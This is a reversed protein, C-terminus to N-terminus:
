QQPATEVDWVIVRNRGAEKAALLARDACALLDDLATKEEAATAAIGASVTVSLRGIPADVRLSEIFSRLREGVQLAAERSTEPLV